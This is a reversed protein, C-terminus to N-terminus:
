LRPSALTSLADDEDFRLENDGGSYGICVHDFRMRRM